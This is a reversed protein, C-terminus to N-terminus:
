MRAKMRKTKPKTKLDRFKVSRDVHTPSKKPLGKKERLENDHDFDRQRQEKEYMRDFFTRSEEQTFKRKRKIM